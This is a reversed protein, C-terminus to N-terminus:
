HSVSTNKSPVIKAPKVDLIEFGISEAVIVLTKFGVLCCGGAEALLLTAGKKNFLYTIGHSFIVYLFNKFSSVKKKLMRIM